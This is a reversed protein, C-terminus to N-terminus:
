SRAVEDGVVVGRGERCALFVYSCISGLVHWTRSIKPYANKERQFALMREGGLKKVPFSIIRLRSEFMVELGVSIIM